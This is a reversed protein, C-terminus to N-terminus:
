IKNLGNIGWHVNPNSTDESNHITSHVHIQAFIEKHCKMRKFIYEFTPNSFWITTRNRIKSDEMSNEMATASSQLEVLLTYTNWNKRMRTKNNITKSKQIHDERGLVLYLIIDWQIIAKMKRINIINFM